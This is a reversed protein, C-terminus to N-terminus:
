RLVAARYARLLRARYIAGPALSGTLQVQQTWLLQWLSVERAALGPVPVHGTVHNHSRRLDKTAKKPLQAALMSARADWDVYPWRAALLARWVEGTHAM